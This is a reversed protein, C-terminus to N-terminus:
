VGIDAMVGARIFAAPPRKGAVATRVIARIEDDSGSLAHGQDDMLCTHLRGQSSLRLRDCTACFPASTTTIFGVSADTLPTGDIQWVRSTPEDRDNREILSVGGAYMRERMTMADVYAVAQWPRAEGIAMLEIFRVHVGEWVAFNAFGAYDTDPMAVVNIKLPAYGLRKATRISALVQDLGDRRSARRFADPTLADLSINLLTLGAVQLAPLLPELLVGTTTMGVLPVLQAAHQVHGVVDDSVTPEGGTIRIKKIGAAEYVLRALRQLEPAAIRTRSFTADAPLCYVCRLNCRDTISVRLYMDTDKGRDGPATPRRRPLHSPKGDWGTQGDM